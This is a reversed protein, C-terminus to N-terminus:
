WLWDDRWLVGSQLLLLDTWQPGSSDSGRRNHCAGITSCVLIYLFLAIHTWCRLPMHQKSGYRCLVCYLCPYGQSMNSSLMRLSRFSSWTYRDEKITEHSIVCSVCKWRSLLKFESHLSHKDFLGTASVYPMNEPTKWQTSKQSSARTLM